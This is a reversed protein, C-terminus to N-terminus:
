GGTTVMEATQRERVAAAHAPFGEWEALALTAPSLDNIARTSLRAVSVKKTFSEATVGSSVRAFRSTPLAAPIGITYNAASFPVNQGLLVEAAHHLAPLLEAPESTALQLHEPAYLNAFEVAQEMDEVLVAGGVQSIAALAYGRRPEPLRALQEAIEGQVLDVLDEHATVLIAPSDSGHEAECLLDAALLRPEATQDAIIMSETPGLMMVTATGYRQVEMQAIQVPPSGPGLVKVTRPISATGFALAAIGAPGNSRFVQDIGLEVAVMLVAPDVRGEGGPIPPVVIAIDPVGAVVAPTAIQFLSSPYSGKGSPVFLGASPIPMAMQGVELGPEVEEMWEREGLARENFRRVRQISERIAALLRDPIESAARTFEAESVRLGSADIRCGDFDRLARLVADDGHLRVDDILKRVAEVLDPDITDVGRGVLRDRRVKDLESWRMVRVPRLDSNM